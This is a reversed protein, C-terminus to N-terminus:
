RELLDKVTVEPQEERKMNGEDHPTRWPEKKPGM